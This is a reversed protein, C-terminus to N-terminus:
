SRPFHEKLQGLTADPYHSLHKAVSIIDSISHPSLVRLDRDLYDLLTEDVEDLSGELPREVLSFIHFVAYYLSHTLLIWARVEEESRERARIGALTIPMEEGELLDELRNLNVAKGDHWDRVLGLSESALSFEPSHQLHTAAIEAILVVLCIRARVPLADAVAALQSTGKTM